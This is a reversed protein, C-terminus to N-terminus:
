SRTLTLHLLGKQNFIPARSTEIIIMCFSTLFSNAAWVTDEKSPGSPGQTTRRAAKKPPTRDTTMRLMETKNDVNGRPFSPTESNKKKQKSQQTPERATSAKTGRTMVSQGSCAAAIVDNCNIEPPRIFRLLLSILSLSSSVLKAGARTVVLCGNEAFHKGLRKGPWRLPGLYRTVDFANHAGM